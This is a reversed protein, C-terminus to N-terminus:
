RSTPRAQESLQYRSRRGILYGVLASGAVLFLLGAIVPLGPIELSSGSTSAKPSPSLGNIVLAGSYVLNTNPDVTLFGGRGGLTLNAIPTGTLGDIAYLSMSDISDTCYPYSGPYAEVYVVGTTSDAAAQFPYCGVAASGAVEDTRGNAVYISGNEYFVDISNGSPDVVVSNVQYYSPLGTVNAVVQNSREDVVSLPNGISESAVYLRGTNSDVAVAAPNDWPISGVLVNTRGDIVDIEGNLGKLPSCILGGPCGIAAYARDTIPDVTIGTVEFGAAGLYNSGVTINAVDKMSNGDVVTVSLGDPSFQALYVMNTNPDVALPSISSGPYRVSLNAVIVGTAADIALLNAHSDKQHLVQSYAWLQDTQPNIAEWALDYGNVNISLTRSVSLTSTGMAACVVKQVSMSIGGIFLLMAPNRQTVAGMVEVTLRYTGSGNFVTAVPSSPGSFQPLESIGLLESSIDVRHWQGISSNTVNVEQADVYSKTSSLSLNQALNSVIIDVYMSSMGTMLLPMVWASVSFDYLPVSSWQFSQSLSFFAQGGPLPGRGMGAKYNSLITQNPIITANVLASGNFSAGTPTSSSPVATFDQGSPNWSSLDSVRSFNSPPVTYSLQAKPLICHNTESGYAPLGSPLVVLAFMM